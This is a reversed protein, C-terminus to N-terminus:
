APISLRNARQRLVLMLPIAIGVLVLAGMPLESMGTSTSGAGVLPAVDDVEGAGRINDAFNL